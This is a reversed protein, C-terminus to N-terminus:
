EVIIGDRRQEILSCHYILHTLTQWYQEVVINSFWPDLQRNQIHQVKDQLLKSSSLLSSVHTHTQVDPCAFWMNAQLQNAGSFLTTLWHPEKKGNGCVSDSMWVSMSVFLKKYNTLQTKIVLNDGTEQWLIWALIDSIGKLCLKLELPESITMITCLRRVIKTVKQFLNSIQAEIIKVYRYNTLQVHSQVKNPVIQTQKLLSDTLAPWKDSSDNDM